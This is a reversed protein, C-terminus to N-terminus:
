LRGGLDRTSVPTPASAAPSASPVSPPDRPDIRHVKNTRPQTAIKTHTPPEPIHELAATTSGAADPAPATVLEVSAPAPAMPIQDVYSQAAASLRWYAFGFTAALLSAATIMFVRRASRSPSDLSVPPEAFSTGAHEITRTIREISVQTRPPGFDALARAFEAINRFRKDRDMQLCKLIAAEIRAPVDPRQTWLPPPRETAIKFSIEALSSGRFPVEGTLLEYFVVGLAWIDARTDVDRSSIMQEPAMYLPTGLIMATDTVGTDVHGTTDPMVKSIGFDLVKISLLGDARRTVFLNSPKLDRHIIGLAHAEVIAECAQLIFEVAQEVPAIHREKLWAGLHTGDLYEMVMYPAGDNLMGVDIVRAVHESKIRVVARAERAFRAVVERNSLMTPLLFKIAVKENLVLHHAAVVVAMGGSGLVREIRYKNAVISGAVLGAVNIV